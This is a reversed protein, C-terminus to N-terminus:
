ESSDKEIVFGRSWDQEVEDGALHYGWALKETLNLMEGSDSWAYKSIDGDPWNITIVDVKASKGYWKVFDPHKVLETNVMVRCPTAAQKGQILAILNVM